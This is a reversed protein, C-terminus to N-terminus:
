LLSETNTKGQLAPTTSPDEMKSHQTPVRKQQTITFEFLYVARKLVTLKHTHTFSYGCTPVLSCNDAAALYFVSAAGFCGTDSLLMCRWQREPFVPVLAFTRNLARHRHSELGMPYSTSVKQGVPQPKSVCFRVSFPCWSHM